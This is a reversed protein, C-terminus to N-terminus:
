RPLCPTQVQVLRPETSSMVSKLRASPPLESWILLTRIVRLKVVLGAPETSTSNPLVRTIHVAETCCPTGRKLFSEPSPQNVASYAISGDAVWSRIGRSDM